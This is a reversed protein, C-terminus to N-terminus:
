DAIAASRVEFRVEVPGVSSEEAGCRSPVVSPVSPVRRREAGTIESEEIPKKGGLSDRELRLMWRGILGHVSWCCRRGMAPSVCLCGTPVDWRPVAVSDCSSWGWCGGTRRLPLRSRLRLPQVHLFLEPGDLFLESSGGFFEPGGCLRPRRHPGAQDQGDKRTQESPRRGEDELQVSGPGEPPAAAAAPCVSAV